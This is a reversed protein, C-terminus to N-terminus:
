TPTGPAPPRRSVQAHADAREQALQAQRQDEARGSMGALVYRVDALEQLVQSYRGNVLVTIRDLKGDRVAAGAAHEDVTQRTARVEQKTRLSNWASVSTTILTAVGAFLLPILVSWDVALRQVPVPPATEQLTGVTAVIPAAHPVSPTQLM